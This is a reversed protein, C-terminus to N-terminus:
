RGAWLALPSACELVSVRWKLGSSNGFQRGQRAVEIRGETIQEPYKKRDDGRGSTEPDRKDAAM